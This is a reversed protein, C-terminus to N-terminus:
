ENDEDTFNEEEDAEYGDSKRNIDWHLGCFEEQGRRDGSGAHVGCEPCCGLPFPEKWFNDCRSCYFLGHELGAKHSRSGVPCKHCYECDVNPFHDHVNDCSVFNEEDDENPSWKGEDYSKQVEALRMTSNEFNRDKEEQSLEYPDDCIPCEDNVLEEGCDPCYDTDPDNDREEASLEPEFATKVPVEPELEKVSWMGVAQPTKQPEPLEKQEPEMKPSENPATSWPEATSWCGGVHQPESPRTQICDGENEGLEEMEREYEEDQEHVCEDCFDFDNETYGGCQPCSDRCERCDECLGDIISNEDYTDGCHGCEIGVGEVVPEEDTRGARCVHCLKEDHSVPQFGGQCRECYIGHPLPGSTKTYEEPENCGYNPDHDELWGHFADIINKEHFGCAQLAPVVLENVIEDIMEVEELSTINIERGHTELIIKKM